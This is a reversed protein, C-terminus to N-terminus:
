PSRLLFHARRNQAWAEETQGLAFPKEKGYSIISLRDEPIGLNVLYDKVSQARREGLALNYEVTGREDCHGEILIRAERHSRLWDANKQLIARAEDSLSFQDFPFLIDDLPSKQPEKKKGLSQLSPLLEVEKEPVLTSPVEVVDPGKGEMSPLSFPIATRSKLQEMEESLAQAQTSLSAAKESMQSLSPSGAAPGPKAEPLSAIPIPEKAHMRLQEMEESLAQAQTSLSAAKESMQSLSPSGAAPGPKAEPLSAIPIPEKAHMRLQEMEESLAQAQTSLSAAKESMQSLSPSGAAPGPKAEPLSAIPIPEKAHMRLQEMEESLAQAQTSLSAAKESMQSLSPSGAAPGPKAEPLSAIPIPEKAHMRLQEMEESLAQAQTSLSAAKESMQSLSPSGAAPGPKAEPLSAIPIPEKAHMRLQEMEESLAQAQTSLSAAKESMQSLSPSGAAPGPKAEPLSAIPIPEKAHMRLQEMEESLAQAQTSLSAAKESMQSLSPSGAAPGPKAEPLSAIPIPEKAHMRLQEMEESLAQARKSLSAASAALDETSLRFDGASPLHASESEKGAPSGPAASRAAPPKVTQACGWLLSTGVVLFIVLLLLRSKRNEMKKRDKM